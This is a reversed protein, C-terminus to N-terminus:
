SLGSSHRFSYVCMTRSTGFLTFQRRRKTPDRSNKRKEVARGMLHPEFFHVIDEKRALPLTADRKVHRGTAFLGNVNPGGRREIRLVLHSYRQWM